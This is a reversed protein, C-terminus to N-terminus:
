RRGIGEYVFGMKRMVVPDLLNRADLVKPAAMASIVKSFDTWRFEEWETMICLLDAGDCASYPDGCVETGEPLASTGSRLAPDFVRLAIGQGSLTSLLVLAPSDRTDDTGAKFAVGWVAVVPREKGRARSAQVPLAEDNGGSDGNNAGDGAVRDADDGADGFSGTDVGSDGTASDGTASDGRPVELMSLAKRIVWAEHNDNTRIAAELLSMDYGSASSLALLASTDKPLCSGGWGPGPKLYEFGIRHDYAIGLLVDKVEVGLAECLEAVSNAFSIKTALFANAVYKVTEATMADTIMVPASINAFLSSVKVASREDDAGIVIRDPHLFDSVATGERLFEPNSVVKIDSRGVMREVTLASGVPVTSKNVIIAGSELVPAIETSVASIASMDPMGDAMRPTPVCLFIYDAGEVARGAGVVFRLRGSSLGEAVIEGLGAEFIPIDGESLRAVKMEDVDGCTVNHGMHALCAATTLGVYGAGIVAVSARQDATLERLPIAVVPNVPAGRYREKVESVRRRTGGDGKGSSTGGDHSRLAEQPHLDARSRRNWAVRGFSSAM